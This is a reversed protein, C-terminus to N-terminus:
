KNERMALLQATNYALRTQMGAMQFAQLALERYANDPLTQILLRELADFHDLTRRQMETPGDPEWTQPDALLPWRGGM